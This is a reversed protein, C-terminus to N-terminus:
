APWRESLPSAALNLRKTIENLVFYTYKEGVWLHKAGWGPVIEVGPALSFRETAELPKLYDDFEPVLAVVPISLDAWRSLEEDTTRHLPPSLLIVGAIEGAHDRAHKLIVETGFSWGILWPHPLGSSRVFDLAAELDMREDEGHGFQGESTGRPSSVGRFNFRVVALQALAPLRWAAKRIVHSDMFGGATPLPHFFVASAVPAGTLPLSLEGVLTLGDSTHLTIDRREAPLITTSTIVGSV